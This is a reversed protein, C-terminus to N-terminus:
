GYSDFLQEGAEIVTMAVIAYGKDGNAVRLVNPSCSHSLLSVALCLGEGLFSYHQIKSLLYKKHLSRVLSSFILM